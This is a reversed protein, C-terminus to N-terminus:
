LLIKADSMPALVPHRVLESALWSIYNGPRRVGEGPNTTSSFTPGFPGARCICPQSAETEGNSRPLPPHAGHAVPVQHSEGYPLLTFFSRKGLFLGM